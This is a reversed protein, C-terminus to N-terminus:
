ERAAFGEFVHLIVQPVPTNLARLTVRLEGGRSALCAVLPQPIPLRGSACRPVRRRPLSLKRAPNIGAFVIEPGLGGAPPRPAFLFFDMFSRIARSARLADRSAWDAVGM